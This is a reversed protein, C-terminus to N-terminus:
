QLLKAFEPRKRAEALDDDTKASEKWKADADIAEKLASFAADWRKSLAQACALNYLSGSWNEYKGARGAAAARTLTKVADDLKHQLVLTGGLGDLAAWLLDPTMPDDRSEHLEVARRYGKEALAYDRKGQALEGRQFHALGVSAVLAENDALIKLGGDLDGRKQAAFVDGMVKSIAPSWRAAPVGFRKRLRGKFWEAAPDGQPFSVIVVVDGVVHMTEPYRATPGKAEGWLYGRLYDEVMKAAGKEYEFVLVSGPVGGDAAFSQCASRKPKPFERAFKALKENELIRNKTAEDALDLISPTKFFAAPQNAACHVGDVIKVDKPLEEPKVLVADYTLTEAPKPAQTAPPKDQALAVAQVLTAFTLVVLLARKM